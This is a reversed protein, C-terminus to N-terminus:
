KPDVDPPLEPAKPVQPRPPGGGGPRSLPGTGPGLGAPMGGAAGPAGGGMSGKSIEAITKAYAEVFQSETALEGSNVRGVLMAHQTTMATFLPRLMPMMQEFMAAQQEAEAGGGGLDADLDFKWQGGVKRVATPMPANPEAFSGTQGDPGVKITFQDASQAGGKPGLTLDGGPVGAMKLQPHERRLQDLGKGYKARTARSLDAMSLMIPRVMELIARPGPSEAHVMSMLAPGDDRNSAEIFRVLFARIEKAAPSEDVAAASSGGAPQPASPAPAGSSGGGAPAAPIDKKVDGSVLQALIAAQRSAGEKVAASGQMGEYAVRAEEYLKRAEALLDKSAKDAASAEEASAGPVGAAAAAALLEAYLQTGRARALLLDGLRARFATDTQKAPGQGSGANRLTNMAKRLGDEAAKSKMALPGTRLDKIAALKKSLDDSLAAGRSTSEAAATEVGAQLKELTELGTKTLKLETENAEAEARLEAIRREASQAAAEAELKRQEIADRAKGIEAAQRERDLRQTESMVGDRLRAMDDRKAAMEQDLAKARGLAEDKAASAAKIAEAIGEGKKVAKDRLAKMEAISAGATFKRDAAAASKAGIFADLSRRALGTRSISDRELMVADLLDLTALEGEARGSLLSAPQSIGKDESRVAEALMRTVDTLRRRAETAQAQETATKSTLVAKLDDATAAAGGRLKTLVEATSDGVPQLLGSAAMASLADGARDIAELGPTGPRDCGMLPVLLGAAAVLLVRRVRGLRQPSHLPSALRSATPSPCVNEITNMM